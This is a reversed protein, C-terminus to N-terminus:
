SITSCAPIETNKHLVNQLRLRLEALEKSKFKNKTREIVGIADEIAEYMTSRQLGLVLHFLDDHNIHPSLSARLNQIERLSTVLTPVILGLSANITKVSVHADADSITDGIRSLETVCNELQERVRSVAWDLHEAPDSKDQAPLERYVILLCPQGDLDILNVSLRTLCSKGEKTRIHFGANRLPGSNQNILRILKRRDDPRYWFDVERATRGIVEDRDYGTMDLFSRNVEIFRGEVLTSISMADPSADFAQFIWEQRDLPKSICTCSGSAETDDMRLRSPGQKEKDVVTM